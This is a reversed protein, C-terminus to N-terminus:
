GQGQHCPKVDEARFSMVATGVKLWVFGSQVGVYTGEYGFRDHDLRGVMFRDGVKATARLTAAADSLPASERRELADYMRDQADAYGIPDHIWRNSM